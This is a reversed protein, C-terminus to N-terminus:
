CKADATSLCLVNIATFYGAHKIFLNSQAAIEISFIISIKRVPIRAVNRFM